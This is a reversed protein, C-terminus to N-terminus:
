IYQLEANIENFFRKAGSHVGIDKNMKQTLFSKDTWYWASL